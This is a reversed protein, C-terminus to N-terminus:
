RTSDLLRMSEPPYRDGAAAGPPFAADLAALDAPSLVVEAAGANEELYRRQKTGPIPAIDNGKALLWALAIQPASRGHRAAISILPGLMALNRAINGAQFRPLTRRVDDSALDATDTVGGGLFGRGLPGFAVFGIGLERCAALVGREPDRSWLSYESQLAAIPHTRHARRLTDVGAECLGLYRVKGERVCEAMAGITDEIPVSPDIRHLYYLDITEVGLRELSSECFARVREPRADVATATAGPRPILGFKTAIIVRPRVSALARGLLRENAGAGYADSTDFFNIGLDIARHITRISEADDTPGYNQSMGMCGLGIASVTLGSAGLSRQHM